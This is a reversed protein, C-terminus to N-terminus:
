KGMTLNPIATLAVAVNTDKGGRAFTVLAGVRWGDCDDPLSSSWWYQDGRPVYGITHDSAVVRLANPDHENDPEAYIEVEIMAWGQERMASPLSSVMAQLTEQYYALGALRYREGVAYHAPTLEAMYIKSAKPAKAEQPAKPKKTFLGM